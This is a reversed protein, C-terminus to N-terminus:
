GGFESESFPLTLVSLLNELHRTQVLYKFMSSSSVNKVKDTGGGNGQWPPITSNAFCSTMDSMVTVSYCQTAAM